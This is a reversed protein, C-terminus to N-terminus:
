APGGERQFVPSESDASKLSSANRGDAAGDRALEPATCDTISSAIFARAAGPGDRPMVPSISRLKPASPRASNASARAASIIWLTDGSFEDCSAAASALAAGSGVVLFSPLRRPARRDPLPAPAHALALLPAFPSRFFAM